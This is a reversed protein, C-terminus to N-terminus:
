PDLFSWLNTLTVYYGCSVPKTCCLFQATTREPFIVEEKHSPSQPSCLRDRCCTDVTLQMVFHQIFAHWSSNKLQIAAIQAFHKAFRGFKLVRRRIASMQPKCCSYHFPVPIAAPLSQPCLAIVHPHPRYVPCPGAGTTVTHVALLSTVSEANQGRLTNTHRTHIQSCVAIIERYLM